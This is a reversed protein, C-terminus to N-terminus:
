RRAHEPVRAACWQQVRAVDLNPLVMPSLM